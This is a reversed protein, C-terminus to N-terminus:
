EPAGDALERLLPYTYIGDSHSDGWRINLAYNGIRKWGLLKHALAMVLPRRGSERMTNCNACPCGDRLVGFPIRSEAGGRWAIVLSKTDDDKSVERPVIM